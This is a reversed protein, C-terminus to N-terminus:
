TNQQRRKTKRHTQASSLENRSRISIYPCNCYIHVFSATVCELQWDTLRGSQCTRRYINELVEGVKYILFIFCYGCWKTGRSCQWGVLPSPPWVASAAPSTAQSAPQLSPPLIFFRACLFVDLSPLLLLLMLM